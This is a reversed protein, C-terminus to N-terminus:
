RIIWYDHKSINVWIHHFSVDVGFVQVHSNIAAKNMVVRVQFCSLHGKVPSQIFLNHYM